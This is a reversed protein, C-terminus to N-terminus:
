WEIPLVNIQGAPTTDIVTDCANRCHLLIEAYEREKSVDTVEDTDIKVDILVERRKDNSSKASHRVYKVNENRMMKWDNRCESFAFERIRDTEGTILPMMSRCPVSANGAPWDHSLVEQPNCGAADLLTATIDTLEVPSSIRRQTRHLPYSIAAPIVAAGSYHTHKQVRGHDGFMEGHDATFAYLCEDDLGADKLADLIYGVQDDVLSIMGKYARHLQALHTTLEKSLEGSLGPPDPAPDAIPQWDKEPKFREIYEAPPDFPAHPSCFSIFLCIPKGAPRAALAKLAERAIVNDVYHEDAFPWPEGTFNRVAPFYDNNGRSRVHANYEKRIGKEELYAAYHCRNHVSLQKGGVEWVYDLGYSKIIDEHAVLDHGCSDPTNWPWGQHWHLKGVAATWYGAEQLVRLYTPYQQHLDGSMVNTNIQHTYKGTLLATRAPMCAPNATVCLDCITGKEAIRSLQPTEMFSNHHWSVHDARHQDTMFFLIHPQTTTTAM